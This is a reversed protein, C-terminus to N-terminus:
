RDLLHLGKLSNLRGELQLMQPFYSVREQVLNKLPLLQAPDRIRGTQVIARFWVILEAVRLPKSALRTTLKTLLTNLSQDSLGEVTQQLIHTDQVGLALELLGDNGGQLAQTLLESLSETTATQGFNEKHTIIRGDPAHRNFDVMDDLADEEEMVRSKRARGWRGKDRGEEFYAEVLRGVLEVLAKGVTQGERAPLGAAYRVRM